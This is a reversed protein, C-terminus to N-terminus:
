LYSMTKHRPTIKIRSKNVTNKQKKKEFNIINKTHERLFTCFKKMCDKGHYSTYKDEIHDFGWITSMSYGYLVHEGLKTTSSNEPNNACGDIKQILFEIDVYIICPMKDSETYQNFELTNFKKSTM